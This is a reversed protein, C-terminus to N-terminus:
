SALRRMMNMLRLIETQNEMLLSEYRARAYQPAETNLTDLFELLGATFDANAPLCQAAPGQLDNVACCNEYALVPVGAALAELNVIGQTEDPYLSPFLFVDIDRFFSAKQSGYVKGRWEFSEGFDRCAKDIMAGATRDHIPGAVILRTVRGKARAVSFAEIVRGLGKENTLNSMHGLIRPTFPRAVKGAAIESPLDVAGINSLEATHRVVNSADRLMQSMAHCITIHVAQDGAHKALRSLRPDDCNIHSRTHHHLFIDHGRLRALSALAATLPLAGRAHVSLYLTTRHHVFLWLAAACFVCLKRFVRSSNSGIGGGTDFKVVKLGAQRLAHYLYITTISQGHIPEPFPGVYCIPRVRTTTRSANDLALERM